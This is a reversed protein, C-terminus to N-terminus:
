RSMHKAEDAAFRLGTGSEDIAGSCEVRMKRGVPVEAAPEISRPSGPAAMGSKACTLCRLGFWGNRM